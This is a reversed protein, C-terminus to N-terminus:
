ILVRIQMMNPITTNPIQIYDTNAYEANLWEGYSFIQASPKCAPCIWMNTILCLLVM